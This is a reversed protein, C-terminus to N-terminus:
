GFFKYSDSEAIALDINDIDLAIRAFVFDCPRFSLSRKSKPALYKILGLRHELSKFVVLKIVADKVGTLKHIVNKDRPAHSLLKVGLIQFFNSKLNELNSVKFSTPNLGFVSRM